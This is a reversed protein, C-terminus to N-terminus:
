RKLARSQKMKRARGGKPRTGGLQAYQQRGVRGRQFAQLLTAASSAARYDYRKSPPEDAARPTLHVEGRVLVIGEKTSITVQQPGLFPATPDVDADPAMSPPDFVVKLLWADELRDLTSGPSLGLGGGVGGGGRRVAVAAALTTTGEVPSRGALTAPRAARGLQQVVLVDLDRGDLGFGATEALAHSLPTACVVGVPVYMPLQEEKSHLRAPPVVAGAISSARQVAAADLPKVEVRTAHAKRLRELAAAKDFLAQKLRAALKSIQQQGDEVSTQLRALQREAQAAEGAPRSGAREHSPSAGGGAPMIGEKLKSSAVAASAQQQLEAAVRAAEAARKEEAREELARLAETRAEEVARLLADKEEKALRQVERAQKRQEDAEAKMASVRAEAEAAMMQGRDFEEQALRRLAELNAHAEAMAERESEAKRWKAEARQQAEHAVQLAQSALQASEEASRSKQLVTESRIAEAQMANRRVQEWHRREAQVAQLKDAHAKAEAERVAEELERRSREARALGTHADAKLADIERQLREAREAERKGAALADELRKAANARVKDELQRLAKAHRDEAAKLQAASRAEAAVRVERQVRSLEARHAELMQAERVAATAKDQEQAQHIKHQQQLQQRQEHRMRTLSKTTTAVAQRHAENEARKAVVDLEAEKRRIAAREKELRDEYHRRLRLLTSRPSPAGIALPAVSSSANTWAADRAHSHAATGGNAGTSGFRTTNGGSSSGVGAGGRRVAGRATTPRGSSSRGPTRPTRQSDLITQQVGIEKQIYKIAETGKLVRPPSWAATSSLPSGVPVHFPSASPDAALTSEPQPSAKVPAPPSTNVSSPPLPAGEPKKRGAAREREVAAEAEAEAAELDAELTAEKSVELDAALQGQSANPRPPLPSSSHRSSAPSAPPPPEDDDDDDDADDSSSYIPDGEEDDDSDM